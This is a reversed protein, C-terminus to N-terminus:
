ATMRRFELWWWGYSAVCLVEAVSAVYFGAAAYFYVFWLNVFFPLIISSPHISSAHDSSEQCKIASLASTVAFALAIAASILDLHTM